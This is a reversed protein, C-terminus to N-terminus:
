GATVDNTEPGSPEPDQEGAVLQAYTAEILSPFGLVLKLITRSGQLQGLTQEGEATDYQGLVRDQTAEIRQTFLAWGASKFMREYAEYEGRQEATLLALDTKSLM